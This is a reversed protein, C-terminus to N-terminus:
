GVAPLDGGLGQALARKELDALLNGVGHADGLKDLSM